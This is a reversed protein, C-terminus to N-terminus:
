ARNTREYKRLEEELIHRAAEVGFRSFRWGISASILKRRLSGLEHDHLYAERDRMRKLAIEIVQKM